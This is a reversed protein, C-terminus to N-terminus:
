LLEGLTKGMAVLDDLLYVEDGEDHLARWMATVDDPHRRSKGNSLDHNFNSEFFLAAARHITDLGCPPFKVTGRCIRGGSYVNPFPARCLETEATPWDGIALAYVYFNNDRGAFVLPPTPVTLPEAASGLRLIRRQPPLYVGVLGGSGARSYFLVDRPLIGAGVDLGSLAAAVDLPSVEDFSVPRGDQYSTRFLAEDYIDLRVRLEQPKGSLGEAGALHALNTPGDLTQACVNQDSM